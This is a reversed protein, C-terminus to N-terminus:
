ASFPFRTKLHDAFLGALVSCLQPPYAGAAKSRNFRVGNVVCSGIVVSHIHQRDCKFKSFSDLKDVTGALRTKKQVRHTKHLEPEPPLLGLMCQDFTVHPYQEFEPLWFVASSEPNEVTWPIGEENLVEMLQFM